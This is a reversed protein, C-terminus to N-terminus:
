IVAGALSVVLVVAVIGLALALLSALLVREPHRPPNPAM